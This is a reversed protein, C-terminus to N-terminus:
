ARRWKGPDILKHMKMFPVVTLVLGVLIVVTGASITLGGAFPFTVFRGTRNGDRLVLGAFIVGGGLALVLPGLIVSLIPHRRVWSPHALDHVVDAAAKADLGRAALFEQVEKESAGRRLMEAASTVAAEESAERIGKAAVQPDVGEAVLQEQAQRQSV